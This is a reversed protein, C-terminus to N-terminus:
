RQSFSKCACRARNAFKNLAHEGYSFRGNKSQLLTAIGEKRRLYLWETLTYTQKPMRIMKSLIHRPRFLGSINPETMSHNYARLVDKHLRM